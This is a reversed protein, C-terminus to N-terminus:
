FATNMIHMFSTRYNLFITVTTNLLEMGEDKDIKNGSYKTDLKKLDVEDGPKIYYKSYDLKIEM